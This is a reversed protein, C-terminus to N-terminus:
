VLGSYIKKKKSYRLKSISLELKKIVINHSGIGMCKFVIQNLKRSKDLFINNKYFKNETIYLIQQEWFM